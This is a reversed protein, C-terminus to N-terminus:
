IAQAITKRLKFRTFNYSFKGAGIQSYDLMDNVLNLLLKSSFLAPELFDRSYKPEILSKLRELM